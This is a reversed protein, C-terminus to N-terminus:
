APLTITFRAGHGPTSAVSVSGGLATLSQKVLYLGLGTGEVGETGEARHYGSFIAEQDKESIGPGGDAITIRHEEKSREYSVFVTTNTNTYKVANSLLNFLIHRLMDQDARVEVQPALSADLSVTVQKQKAILTLNKSIDEIFDRLAIPVPRMTRKGQQELKTIDLLNNVRNVLRVSADYISTLSDRTGPEIADNSLVDELAWRIGTLPTRIEHSAISLFEARRELTKEETRRVYLVVALVVIVVLSVLLPLAAYMLAETIFAGAPLDIGVLAVVTGDATVLPAYGSIWVGWRDRTPGDTRPVADEFLLEMEPTAEEYRQGPPSYDESDSPESDVFFYLGEGDKGILYIFRIDQNAERVLMLREKLSAYEATGADAEVGALTEVDEAPILRSITEARDIIHERGTRDVAVYVFLASVAGILIVTFATVAVITRSYSRTSVGPLYM